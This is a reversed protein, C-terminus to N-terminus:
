DTTQGTEQSLADFYVFVCWLIPVHLMVIRMLVQGMAASSSAKYQLTFYLLTFSDWSCETSACPTLPPIAGV